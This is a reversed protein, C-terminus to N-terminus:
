VGAASFVTGEPAVAAWRATLDNVARITQNTIRM